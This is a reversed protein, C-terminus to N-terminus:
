KIDFFPDNVKKCEEDGQDTKVLPDRGADDKGRLREAEKIRAAAASHHAEIGTAKAWENTAKIYNSVTTDYAKKSTCYVELMSSISKFNKSEFDPHELLQKVILSLSNRMEDYTSIEEEYRNSVEKMKDIYTLHSNLDAETVGLQLSSNKFSLFMKKKKREFEPLWSQTLTEECCGGVESLRIKDTEGNLFALECLLKDAKGARIARADSGRLQNAKSKFKRKGSM